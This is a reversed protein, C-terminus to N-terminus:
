TNVSQRVMETLFASLYDPKIVKIDRKADNEETLTDYNTAYEAPDLVGNTTSMDQGIEQIAEEPLPLDFIPDQFNNVIIITWFYVPDNYLENSIDELTEGDSIKYVQLYQEDIDTALNYKYFINKFKYQGNDYTVDPVLDQIKM